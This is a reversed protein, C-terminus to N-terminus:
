KAVEEPALDKGWDTKGLDKAFMQCNFLANKGNRMFLEPARKCATVYDIEGNVYSLCTSIQRDYSNGSLSCADYLKNAGTYSSTHVENLSYATKEPDDLHILYRLAGRMSGCAEMFTNVPRGDSDTLGDFWKLVSPISHRGPDYFVIHVHPTKYTVEGDEKVEMVDRDHRIYAFYGNVHYLLTRRIDELSAYSVGSFNSYTKRPDYDIHPLDPLAKRLEEASQQGKDYTSM